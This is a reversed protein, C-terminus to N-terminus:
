VGLAGLQDTTLTISESMPSRRVNDFRLAARVEVIALHRVTDAGVVVASEGQSLNSVYRTIEVPPRGPDIITVDIWINLMVGAGFNRLIIGQMETDTFLSPAPFLHSRAQEKTLRLAVVSLTFSSLAVLLGGATAIVNLRDTLSLAFSQM